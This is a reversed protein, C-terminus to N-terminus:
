DDRNTGDWPNKTDDNQYDYDKVLLDEAVQFGVLGGSPVIKTVANADKLRKDRDDQTLEIQNMDRLEQMRLKAAPKEKTIKMAELRRAEAEAELKQKLERKRKLDADVAGKLTNQRKEVYKLRDLLSQMEYRDEDTLEEGAEKKQKLRQTLNECAALARSLKEEVQVAKELDVDSPPATIAKIATM